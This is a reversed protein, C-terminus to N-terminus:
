FTYTVGGSLFKIDSSGARGPEATGVKKFTEYELRLGVRRTVDYNAGLGFNGRWGTDSISNLRLRALVLGFRTYVSLGQAVPLSFRAGITAGDAKWDFRSAGGPYAVSYSWKGFNVYGGEIAINRDVPYGVQLKYGTDTDKVSSTVSTGVATAFMDDMAGKNIKFHSQGASVSMYLGEAHVPAAMLAIGALIPPLIWNRVNM